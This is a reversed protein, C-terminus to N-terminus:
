SRWAVNASGRRGRVRARGCFVSLHSRRTRTSRRLMGDIRIFRSLLSYVAHVPHLLLPLLRLPRSLPLSPLKTKDGKRSVISTVRRTLFHSHYARFRCSTHTYIPLFMHSVCLTLCLRSDELTSSISSEGGERASNEEKERVGFSTGSIVNFNLGIGGTHYSHHSKPNSNRRGIEKSLDQRFTQVEVLKWAHNGAIERTYDRRIRVPDSRAVAASQRPCAVITKLTAQIFIATLPHM